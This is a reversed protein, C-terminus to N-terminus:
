FHGSAQFMVRAWVPHFFCMTTDTWGQAAPLAPLHLALLCQGDRSCLDKRPDIVNWAGTHYSLTFASPPTELLAVTAEWWAVTNAPNYNHNAGKLSWNLFGLYYNVENNWGKKQEKLVKNKTALCSSIEWLNQPLDKEIWSIAFLSETNLFSLNNFWTFTKERNFSLFLFSSHSCDQGPPVYRATHTTCPEQEAQGSQCLALLWRLLWNTLLKM